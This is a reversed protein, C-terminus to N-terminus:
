KIGKQQNLWETLMQTCPYFEKATKTDAKYQKLAQLMAEKTKVDFLPLLPM